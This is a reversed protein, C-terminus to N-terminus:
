GKNKLGLFVLHMTEACKTFHCVFFFNCSKLFECEDENEFNVIISILISSFCGGVYVRWRSM